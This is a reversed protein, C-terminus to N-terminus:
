VVTGDFRYYTSVGLMIDPTRGDAAFPLMLSEVEAWVGGHKLMPATRAWSPKGDLATARLRELDLPRQADALPRTDLYEGTIDVGVCKALLTGFLRCRLRFPDREIDHLWIWGLADPVAFPDFDARSPLPGRPRPLARWLEYVARQRAHWASTDFPELVYSAAM